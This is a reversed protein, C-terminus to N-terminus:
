LVLMSLALLQLILLLVKSLTAILLLLNRPSSTLPSLSCTLHSIHHSLHSILRSLHTHPSVSPLFDHNVPPPHTVPPIKVFVVRSSVQLGQFKSKNDSLLERFRSNSHAKKINANVFNVMETLKSIATNLHTIDPHDDSTKKVM